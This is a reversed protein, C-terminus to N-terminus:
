VSDLYYSKYWDFFSALGKELSTKPSFGLNKQALDVDAYTIDVDGKPSQKFVIEAKKGFYKEIEHILSMISHPKHNGLNYIAFPTKDQMAKIIGDVIDDIYTYDRLAKGEHYVEIPQNKLLKDTFSFYAMDPRGWPGYVTFFRLGIAKIGFTKHYSLACLENARKTAAYFSEPHDCRENENFPAKSHNGYVSSSSAFVLPVHKNLRTWELIEAFGILNSHNYSRPNKEAYRVGAQAALHVLIDPEVEDFFAYCNPEAIDLKKFVLGEKELIKLRDLKLNQDYYDNLNDVGFVQHGTQLLKKALHFGIFGTVGTIMVKM